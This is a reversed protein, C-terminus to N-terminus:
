NDRKFKGNYGCRGRFIIFNLLININFKCYKFKWRDSFLDCQYLLEREYISFYVNITLLILISLEKERQSFTLILSNKLLIRM